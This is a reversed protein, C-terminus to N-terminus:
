RGEELVTPPAFVQVRAGTPKGIWFVKFAAKGHPKVREVGARGAAVVRGGKLAVAFITVNRQDVASPNGVVGRTIIGDPDLDQRLGSITLQPLAKPAPRPPPGVKAVVDHPKDARVQDYVWFAREHPRLLAVHTLSPELGPLDNAFQKKGAVDRVDIAVPLAAQAAGAGSRLEVVAATGYRDTVLATRVVSVDPNAKTIVLGEQRIAAKAHSAKEASKEQTSSCGAVLVTAAGALM